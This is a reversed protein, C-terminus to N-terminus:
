FLNLIIAKVDEPNKYNRAGVLINNKWFLYVEGNYPDKFLFEGEHSTDMDDSTFSKYENLIKQCEEPSDKKTAFLEYDQDGEKYKVVFVKNLFEHGMFSKSVYVEANEIRNEAPLYNIMEPFNVKEGLNNQLLGSIDVMAKVVKKAQSSGIIKIYYDRHLFILVDEQLYGQTGYTGFNFDPYRESSYIGFANDFNSHRYLEAKIWEKGKQYEAIHLEVFDYIVFNEAAGNIYDWLDNPTYVQFDTNLAWGKYNPFLNNNKQGFVSLNMILGLIIFFFSKNKM